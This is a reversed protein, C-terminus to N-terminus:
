RKLSMMISHAYLIKPSRILPSIALIGALPVFLDLVASRRAILLLSIVGLILTVWTLLSYKDSFTRIALLVAAVLGTLLPDRLSQPWSKWQM